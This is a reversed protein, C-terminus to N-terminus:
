SSSKTKSREVETTISRNEAKDKSQAVFDLPIKGDPLAFRLTFTGDNRLKIKKNGLWVEADPETRGYVILETGIDFFFKRKKKERESAGRKVFESAGQLILEESSGLLIKKIFEDRSLGRILFDELLIDGGKISYRFPTRGVEKGRRTSIFRKLFPFLRSYYARIDDETLFIKRRSIEAAGKAKSPSPAEPQTEVIVYPPENFDEKLEMWILDSRGSSGARPTTVFNSRALAFFSGDSTRIGIEGCYTVNDNWISVYWNNTHSGVDIDFWHNANNGNFDICTTDYMRLTYSSGEFEGSGIKNRIQEISSPAIEWYAYIWFPDRAILTLNTTNYSTPLDYSDVFVKEKKAKQKPETKQIQPEPQQEFKQPKPQQEFKQPPHIRLDDFQSKERKQTPVSKKQPPVSELRTAKTKEKETKSIAQLSSRKTIIDKKKKSRSTRKRQVM